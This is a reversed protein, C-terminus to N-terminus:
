KKNVKAPNKKLDLYFNKFFLILLPTLVLLSGISGVFPLLGLVWSVVFFIVMFLLGYGFVLWWRGKVLAKSRKMSEWAGTNEKLLIYDSFSAWFVTFIIGPIVLLIYLPILCIIVLLTMGVYRWFNKRAYKFVADFSLKKDELAIYTYAIAVWFYLVGLIICFVIIFLIFSLTIQFDPNSMFGGVNVTGSELFSLGLNAYIGSFLILGLVAIVVIPILYLFLFVKGISTFKKGYESISDGLLNWFGKQM